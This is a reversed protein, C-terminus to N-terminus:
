SKKNEVNVIKEKMMRKRLYGGGKKAYSKARMLRTFCLDCKCNLGHFADPIKGKKTIYYQKM